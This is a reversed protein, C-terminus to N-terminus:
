MSRGWIPGLLAIFSPFFRWFSLHYRNRAGLPDGGRSFDSGDLMERGVTVERKGGVGQARKAISRSLAAWAPPTMPSSPPPGGVLVQPGSGCQPCEVVPTQHTGPNPAPKSVAKSGEFSCFYACFGQLPVKRKQALGQYAGFGPEFSIQPLSM